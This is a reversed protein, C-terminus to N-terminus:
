SLLVTTGIYKPLIMVYGSSDKFTCTCEYATCSSQSNTFINVLNLTYYSLSMPKEYIVDYWITIPTLTNVLPSAPCSVTQLKRKVSKPSIKLPDDKPNVFTEYKDSSSERTEVIQLISKARKKKLNQEKNEFFDTFQLEQLNVFDSKDGIVQNIEETKLDNESIEKSKPTSDLERPRLRKQM